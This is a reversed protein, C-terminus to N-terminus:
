DLVAAIDISCYSIVNKIQSTTKFETQSESIPEFASPLVTM